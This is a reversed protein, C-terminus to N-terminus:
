ARKRKLAGLGLLVTGMFLIATPEPVPSYTFDDMLFWKADGSPAFRVEDVGQINAAYWHWGVVSLDVTQPAGLPNGGKYGQLTVSNSTYGFPQNNYTWEAFSAGIFNFLSGNTTAVTYGNDNYAANHASPFQSVAGDNGGAWGAYAGYYLADLVVEWNEGNLPGWNFGGYGAPLPAIYGQAVPVVLDDFNLTIPIDAFAPVAFLTLL